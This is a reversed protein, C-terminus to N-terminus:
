GGAAVYRLVVTGGSILTLTEGDVDFSDASQLLALYAQEQEMVGEPEACFMLTAGAPGITISDGDTTYSAFYNNCGAIGAVSGDEFTASLDTGEMPAASAEGSSLETVVWTRGELEGGGSNVAIAILVVGGLLALAILGYKLWDDRM